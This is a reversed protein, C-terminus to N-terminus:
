GESMRERLRLTEVIFSDITRSSNTIRQRTSLPSLRRRRPHRPPHNVLLNRCHNPLLHHNIRGNGRRFGVVVVIVVVVTGLVVSVVVGVSVVVVSAVVVSVVVVGVVVVGVVVVGVVVVGVVVVGVVVVGVVVVSTLVVVVCTLFICVM